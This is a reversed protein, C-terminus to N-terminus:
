TQNTTQPKYKYKHYIISVKFDSGKKKKVQDKPNCPILLSPIKKSAKNKGWFSNTSNARFWTSFSNSTMILARGAVFL